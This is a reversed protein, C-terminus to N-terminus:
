KSKYFQIFPIRAKGYYPAVDCFQFGMRHLWQISKTNRMDVFNTLTHYKELLKDLYKKTHKVFLRPQALDTAVMWVVAVGEAGPAPSAGGLALYGAKDTAVWKDSSYHICYVLLQGLNVGDTLGHSAEIERVDSERVFPAIYLGDEDRAERVIM